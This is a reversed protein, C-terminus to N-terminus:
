ALGPHCETMRPKKNTMIKRPISSLLALERVPSLLLQYDADLGKRESLCESYDMVINQHWNTLDIQCLLDKAMM